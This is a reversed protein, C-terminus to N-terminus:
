GSDRANRRRLAVLGGAIALVGTAAVAAVPGTGTAALDDGRGGQAETGTSPGTAPTGGTGAAASPSSAPTGAPVIAKPRTFALTGFGLQTCTSARIAACSRPPM